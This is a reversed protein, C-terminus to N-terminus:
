SDIVSKIIKNIKFALGKIKRLPVSCIGIRVGDKFPITFINNEELKEIIELNKKELHYLSLFDM